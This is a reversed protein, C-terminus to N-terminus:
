ELVIKYRLLKKTLTTLKIVRCSINSNRQTSLMFRLCIINKNLAERCDLWDYDVHQSDNKCNKASLSASPGHGFTGIVEYKWIIIDPSLQNVVRAVGQHAFLFGTLWIFKILHFNKSRCM